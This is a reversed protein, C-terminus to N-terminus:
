RRSTLEAQHQVALFQSLRGAKRYNEGHQNEPNSEDGDIKEDVSGACM